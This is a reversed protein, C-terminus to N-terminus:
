AKSKAIAIGSLFLVAMLSFGGLSFFPLTIGTMPLAKTVGAINLFLQVGLLAAISKSLTVIVLDKSNSSAIRQIWLTFIFLLIACGLLGWEEAIAAYVFDSEVIPIAEPHGANIGTGFLNGAYQASLSQCIQYGKGLPDAFPDQWISFRIATHASINKLFWGACVTFTTGLLFWGWRNTTASLLVMLTLALILVMGLDGVLLAIFFPIGWAILLAIVDVLPPVPIGCVTQSFGKIRAPLWGATFLILFVKTFESPNIKGPLFIGGRYRQGFLLLAIMPILALLWFIWAFQTIHTSLRKENYGYATGLLLIVGFIYPLYTRWLSWDTAYTGLRYQVATGLGLLLLTLDILTADGKFSPLSRIWLSGLLASGWFLIPMFAGTSALPNYFSSPSFLPLTAFGVVLFLLVLSLLGSSNEKTAPTSPKQKKPTSRPKKKADSKKPTHPM